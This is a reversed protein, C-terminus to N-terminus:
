KYMKKQSKRWKKSPKVIGDMNAQQDNRRLAMIEDESLMDGEKFSKQLNGVCALTNYANSGPDIVIMGTIGDLRNDL